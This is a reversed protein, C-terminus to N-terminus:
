DQGKQRFQSIWGVKSSKAESSGPGTRSNRKKKKKDEVIYGATTEKIQGNNRALQEVIAMPPANRQSAFHSLVDLCPDKNNRWFERYEAGGRMVEGFAEPDNLMSEMRGTHKAPQGHSPVAQTIDWCTSCIVIRSYFEPGCM